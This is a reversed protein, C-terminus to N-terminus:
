LLKKYVPPLINGDNRNIINSSKNILWSESFLRKTYDKETSLLTAENWDIILDLTISHECFAPKEARQYKIARKFLLVIM